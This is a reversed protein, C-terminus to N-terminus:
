KYATVMFSETARDMIRPIGESWQPTFWRRLLRIVKWIPLFNTRGVIAPKIRVQSFGQQQILSALYEPSVNGMHLAMKRSFRNNLERNPSRYGGYNRNKTIILLYGGPQLVRYFEKVAKAKDPFYELARISFLANIIESKIPLQYANACCLLAVNDDSSCGKLMELSIDVGALLKSRMSLFKTWVCPGTGVEVVCDFDKNALEQMLSMHTQHYHERRLPSAEWRYAFYGKELSPIKTDYYERIKDTDLM